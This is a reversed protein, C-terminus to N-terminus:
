GKSEGKSCNNGKEVIGCPEDFVDENSEKTSEDYREEEFVGVFYTFGFGKVSLYNYWTHSLSFLYQIRGCM